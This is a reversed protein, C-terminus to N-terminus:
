IRFSETEALIWDRFLRIKKNNRRAHPYVLWYGLGNDSKQAFPQYLRGESVERQYLAPTIIGVGHGAIAALAEYTQAGMITSSKNTPLGCVIGAENFWLNWWPDGTSLLPLQLLDAPTKMTEPAALAPSLMPSFEAKLLLHYALGDTALHTGSRIAIDVPERTFDVLNRTADMRVALHPYTLQFTGLRMALWQAAFTPIVSISLIEEAEQLSSAFANQLLSFSESVQPALKLGIDTLSVQRTGRLFLASGVREELIKIQYSVAAQTMGLEEAAKTFSLHRAAAEFVRVANLPPLDAHSM